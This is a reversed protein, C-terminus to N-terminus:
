GGASTYRRLSLLWIVRAFLALAVTAVISEIMAVAPLRGLLAEAPFTTMVVLPIIFTFIVRFVGRFVSSPWRAADFISNFLSTLNDGKVAYFSVSVILIWLSYLLVTSTIFLLMAQLIGLVSPGHGIEYFAAAFLAAAHFLGVSRWIEFRATSVLVQADHPKLLTFDFSGSRVQDFVSSLSPSIAGDIVAQLTVFCAVVLLSEGFTWGPVSAQATGQYVIFLPLVASVTWFIGIFFDLVFDLRYQAALLVSSRFQVSMLRFFRHM